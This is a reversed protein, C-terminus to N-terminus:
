ELLKLTTELCLTENEHNKAAADRVSSPTPSTLTRTVM